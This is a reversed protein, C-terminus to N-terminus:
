LAAASRAAGVAVVFVADVGGRHVVAITGRQVALIAASVRAAPPGTESSRVARGLWLGQRRFMQLRRRADESEDVVKEKQGFNLLCRALEVNLDFEDLILLVQCLPHFLVTLPWRRQQDKIEVVGIGLRESENRLEFGFQLLSSRDNPEKRMHLTIQLLFSM